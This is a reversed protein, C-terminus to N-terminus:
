PALHEHIATGMRLAIRQRRRPHSMRNTMPVFVREDDVRDTEILSGPEVRVTIRMGVQEVDDLFDRAGIQHRQAIFHGDVIRAGVGPGPDRPPVDLPIRVTSEMFIDTLALRKGFLHRRTGSIDLVALRRAIRWRQSGRGGRVRRAHPTSNRFFGCLWSRSQDIALRVETAFSEPVQGSGEVHGLGRGQQIGFCPIKM